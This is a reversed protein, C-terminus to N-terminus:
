LHSLVSGEISKMINSHRYLKRCDENPNRISSKKNCKFNNGGIIDGILKSSRFMTCSVANWILRYKGENFALSIRKGLMILYEVVLWATIPFAICAKLLVTIERKSSNGNFFSCTGAFLVPVRWSKYVEEIAAFFPNLQSNQFFFWDCLFKLLESIGINEKEEKEFSWLSTFFGSSFTRTLYSNGAYCRFLFAVSAHIKRREEQFFFLVYLSSTIFTFGCLKTMTSLFGRLWRVLRSRFSEKRGGDDVM